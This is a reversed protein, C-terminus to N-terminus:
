HEIKGSASLWMAVNRTKSFRSFIIILMVTIPVSLFMGVIGWITGWFALCILVVLASINLSNGMVRPELINGVLVQIISVFILVAFFPGFSAYQLLAMFAPFFTAILSGITPIYNLLFILASWFVPFDVGIILLAVYSLVGTLLSMLTKASIYRSLSLEIEKIFRIADEYKDPDKYVRHLKKPLMSEEAMLFIVYIIVLFTDSVVKTLANVVGGAIASFEMSKAETRIENVINVGLARNAINVVLQLNDKYVDIGGIVRRISDTLLMIFLAITAIIVVFAVINKFWLPITRRIFPVKDFVYQLEKILFWVIIAFILPVLISKFFILIAVSAICIILTHALQDTKM